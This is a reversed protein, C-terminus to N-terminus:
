LVGENRFVIETMYPVVKVIKLPKRRFEYPNKKSFRKIVLAPTECRQIINDKDWVQKVVGELECKNDAKPCRPFMGQYLCPTLLLLEDEELIVKDM